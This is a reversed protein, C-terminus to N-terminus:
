FVEMMTKNKEEDSSYTKKKPLVYFTRQMGKVHLSCSFFQNKEKNYIKGFLYIDAGQNEEHADIWYFSLSGDDNVPLIKDFSQLASEPTLQQLEQNM